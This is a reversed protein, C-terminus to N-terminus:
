RTAPQQLEEIEEIAQYPCVTVCLTCGTCLTENITVKNEKTELGPCGLLKVCAMCDTCKETIRCPVVKLGKRRKESITLLTCPSRSIIVAPGETRLAEKITNTAEKVKFPNIEKVYKVGCGKAVEEISVTATQKGMGTRGTGPHPQHGTMATTLNDLVILTVKHNNYVANILGPITAHFFTSDGVIAITDQETVKSIGCATGISAGMCFMLEGVQFPLQYGLAYCGIDTTTIAKGAAAV